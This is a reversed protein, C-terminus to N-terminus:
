QARMIDTSDTMEMITVGTLWHLMNGKLILLYYRFM